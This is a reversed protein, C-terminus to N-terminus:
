VDPVIAAHNPGIAASKAREEAVLEKKSLKGILTRPLSDRFEVHKPMEIPSLRDTLFTRLAAADLTAGPKLAVFAKVTEGRYADAIGIVTCEAVADHEYIADEVLRPYVNYGGALIVDKIRDVIQFYGEADMVGIDGTRFLGDPTTAAATEQPNRWYGLMIQPGRLCVEGREGQPVARGPDSPERLEAITAPMPLGIGPKNRGGPPNCIVCPSTETLGYGEVVVCGTRAEFRHKVEPPLPAGGSICFRISSLDARGRYSAIANFLTPVGSLYTPKHRGILRIAQELDWRPMLIMEAAARVSFLLVTTMAFVHFFPLAALTREAGPITDKFWLVGQSANAYLNAHSLMAGKPSGSTGGTYQLVAIDRAPDIAVPALAATEAALAALSTHRPDAPIAARDRRKLLSFLTRRGPPLMDAFPCVILRGVAGSGLLSAAKPYLAALDLTAIAACEADRAQQELERVTYLPNFNVITLGARLGAFFLLPYAPCNPLLLGLRDGKQLGLHQLGAAIRDVTRAVEGWTTRGGFFSWAPRDGYASAAEDLLTALPATPIPADWAVGEPYHDLWPHRPDTM